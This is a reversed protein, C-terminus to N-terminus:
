LYPQHFVVPSFSSVCTDIAAPGSIALQTGMITVHDLSILWYTPELLTVYNIDGTYYDTNTFGLDMSGGHPEVQVVNPDDVFRALYFGFLPQTWLNSKIATYWWPDARSAALPTWGLLSATLHTMVGLPQNTITFGSM